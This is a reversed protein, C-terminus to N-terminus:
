DNIDIKKLVDSVRIGNVRKIVIIDSSIDNLLSELDTLFTEASYYGSYPDKEESLRGDSLDYEKKRFGSPIYATAMPYVSAPYFKIIM